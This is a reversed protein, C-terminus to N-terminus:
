RRRRFPWLRAPAAEYLYDIRRHIQAHTEAAVERDEADVEALRGVDRKMGRVDERVLDIQKEIRDVADKVTSGGNNKLEDRAQTAVKLTQDRSQESQEVRARIESIEALVKMSAALSTVLVGVAGLILAWEEPSWAPM